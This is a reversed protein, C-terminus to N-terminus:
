CLLGMWKFDRAMVFGRAFVDLYMTVALNERVTAPLCAAVVVVHRARLRHFFQVGGGGGGLSGSSGDLIEGGM